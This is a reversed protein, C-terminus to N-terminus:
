YAESSCNPSADTAAVAMPEPELRGALMLDVMGVMFAMFQELLPWIALVYVQRPLSLGALRGGLERAGGETLNVDVPM